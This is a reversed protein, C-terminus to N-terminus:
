ISHCNVRKVVEWPLTHWDITPWKNWVHPKRGRISAIKEANHHKKGMIHENEEWADTGRLCVIFLCAYMQACFSGYIHTLFLRTYINIYTHTYTHIHPWLLDDYLLCRIICDALFMNWTGHRRFSVETQIMCPRLPRTLKPYPKTKNM